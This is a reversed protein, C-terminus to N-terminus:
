TPTLVMTVNSETADLTVTYTGVTITGADAGEAVGQIWGSVTAEADGDDAVAGACAGLFTSAGLDAVSGEYSCTASGDDAASVSVAAGSAPDSGRGDDLGWAAFEPGSTAEVLTSGGFLSPKAEVDDPPTTPKTTPKTTLKPTPKTTPKTTAVTQNTGPTSPNPKTTTVAAATTSASTSTTTSEVDRSALASPGSPSGDALSEGSDGRLAVYGGVGISVVALVSGVM